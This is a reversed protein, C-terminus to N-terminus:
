AMLMKVHLRCGEGMAVKFNLVYRRAKPKAPAKLQPEQGQQSTTPQLSDRAVVQTRPTPTRLKPTRLTDYGRLSSTDNRTSSNM